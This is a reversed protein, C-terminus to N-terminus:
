LSFGGTYIRGYSDVFNISIDKNKNIIDDIDKQSNVPQNNVKLIVYGERLGIESLKGGPELSTILVGDTVGLRLKQEKTLPIATFSLKESASLDSYARVSDRGKTDKLRVQFEKSKGDRDVTVKVTDGPRKSGILLSLSSQSKVIKGDIQKIIDGDKLGSSAAGSNETVGVILVGEQLKYSTGSKKNYAKLATEDSLDIVNVGLYGRQVIGFQKLDEVIKRVLNSPVAFGYGVYTGTQSSIASNIGVLDGNTNVLAGGSNGPNIAADTQIFSEIPNRASGKLIDLSRGKASVIGATVTSNLNFPNGVALVWEGIQLDDSNYFKLYTLGSANIKLLAIDTNPDKGIVDAQYTTQDNLTIEIKKAGDVVHNNTVIYGDESIIVGSGHGTPQNPDSPETGGPLGFFFDFPNTASYKNDSYNKVNVVANLTKEAATTFTPNNSARAFTANAFSVNQKDSMQTFEDGNQQNQSFGSFQDKVLWITTLTFVASSVGVLGYTLIKKM